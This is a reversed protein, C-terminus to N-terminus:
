GELREPNIVYYRGNQSHFKRQQYPKGNKARELAGCQDLVDVVTAMDFGQTAEKLGASNFYYLKLIRATTGTGDIRGGSYGARDRTLREAYKSEDSEIEGHEPVFRSSGHRELFEVVAQRIKRPEDNGTGRFDLWANFAKAAAELASNEPWPVIGYEIALEGAMGIHAFRSAVRAEQEGHRGSFANDNKALELLEGFDQNDRALKDIFARIAVGYHRKAGLKLADSFARGSKHGHLDDFCGFRRGDTPVDVLRIAQGAKTQMRGEKMTAELSREGTSLVGTRWRKPPRSAGTRTARSKGVGNALMYSIAGAEQPTVESIEDMPLLCDNHQEAVGEVGNSTARWSRKFEPDGWVSRACELITTKGCSSGGILHAGGGESNTRELLPPAFACSMGFMLMPNGVAYRAVNQQWSELTGATGLGKGSRGGDQFVVDEAGPGIAGDPLVFTTPTAWGTRGTCLIKKKPTTHQLYFGFVARHKPHIELGMSLLERRLDAGDANLLEYPMAWHRTSGERDIFRLLVGFNSGEGDRTMAALWVPGAIRTDVPVSPRKDTAESMTHYYTGPRRRKGGDDIWEGYARYCPRDKPPPFNLPAAAVVQDFDFAEAEGSEEHTHEGKM